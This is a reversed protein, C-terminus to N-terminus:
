ASRRPMPALWRPAARGPQRPLPMPLIADLANAVAGTGNWREALSVLAPEQATAIEEALAALATEDFAARETMAEAIAYLLETRRRNMLLAYGHRRPLATRQARRAGPSGTEVELWLTGGERWMAYRGPLRFHEERM